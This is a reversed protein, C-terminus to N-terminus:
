AIVMSTTVGMFAAHSGSVPSPNPFSSKLSSIMQQCLSLIAADQNDQKAMTVTLVGAPNYKLSSLSFGDAPSITISNKILTALVELFLPFSASPALTGGGSLSAKFSTMPDTAGSSPNTASWGYTIEMKEVIYELVADWFKKNAAVASGAEKGMKQIIKDKMDAAVM